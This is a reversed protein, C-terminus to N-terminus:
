RTPFNNLATWGSPDLGEALELFEGVQDISGDRDADRLLLKPVHEQHFLYIAGLAEHEGWVLHDYDEVLLAHSDASLVREHRVGEESWALEFFDRTRDYQVFCRRADVSNPFLAAVPGLDPDSLLARELEVPGTELEVGLEGDLVTPPTVRWLEIRTLGDETTGAVVVRGQALAAVCNPLFDVRRFQEARAAIVPSRPTSGEGDLTWWVDVRSQLRDVGVGGYLRREVFLVGGGLTKVPHPAAAALLIAAALTSLRTARM